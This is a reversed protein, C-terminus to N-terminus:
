TKSTGDVTQQWQAALEDRNAEWTKQVAPIANSEILDVALNLFNQLLLSNPQELLDLIYWEWDVGLTDSRNTLQGVVFHKQKDRLVPDDNQRQYERYAQLNLREAGERGVTGFRPNTQAWLSIFTSIIFFSVFGAPRIRTFIQM